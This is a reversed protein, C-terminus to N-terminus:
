LIQKKNAVLIFQTGFLNPFNQAAFRNLIPELPYLFKRIFPLPLYADAIREIVIWDTDALLQYATDWDFFRFHTKDMLGGDTYKFNGKIFKWRQKFFLVNPLAVILKGEKSLNNHLEILLKEPNYLHELIHSCTICDFEGLVSPDIQNIDAVIVRDLGQSALNAEDESYTIGVVECTLNQKITEGLVGSGCGIDLIRKAHHPIQQFVPQNISTYIM